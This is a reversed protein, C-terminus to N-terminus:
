PTFVPRTGDIDDFAYARALDAVLLAQGSRALVQPDGALAVVARGTYQPSESTSMDFWQANKLVLETRVLGPSLSVVAVGHNRLQDAMERALRDTGTKAINYAPNGSEPVRFSIHIILGHHQEAMIPAAFRSAVYAWRLGALNEDWFSIPKNWFPADPPLHRNDAYGEYGAWANNVLLDLRGQEAMIRKFVNEVQEDDRHDCPIAIGQGGLATVEEATHTITGPLSGLAEGDQHSRGTVYVTAGAEGLSLAIGKGVGRSAGTVLVIRGSLSVM